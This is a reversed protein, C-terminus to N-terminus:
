NNLNAEVWSITIEEEAMGKMSIFKPRNMSTTKYFVYPGYKGKRISIDDSLKKIINSSSSSKKNIYEVVDKLMIDEMEKNIYKVSTNKGNITVYMGYKGNKLIVEEGNYEGLNRNQNPPSESNDSYMLQKLSYEGNKLKELDIKLNKNIQKFSINGKEDKYKIVPGYRGITYTHFEDIKIIPKDTKKIKKISGDIIDNCDRCLDSWEMGGSAIKDLLAEMNKTYDYEFLKNFHKILFEIVLLGTSQLVLKNKESGFEKVETKIEIEDSILEFNECEMKIGEVNEKNVYGKDQIKSIISSFTSPRGIGKKELLQILRSENYHQKLDKITMDSNIKEYSLGTNISVKKLKNYEDDNNEVGYVIKWGEFVVREICYKYNNKLPASLVLVLKDYIAKSMCSALANKYILLYLRLEKNSIKKGIPISTRNISTPRIAEHAEQTLKDKTKKKKNTNVLKFISKSIYKEGYTDHIYNQTLKVFEGSYKISDTRMYTIYGNEYLRQACSMTQKPSFGLDNSAKQQLRSTTLPIPESKMIKKESTNEIKHNFYVSEELFTEVTEKKKFKITLEFPLSQQKLYSFMGVTNYVKKGKRNKIDQYNDYVLRLASSQCRGASLGSKGSINKWLIPSVKFGVLLDLIQRSQQSYIKNLDLYTPNSLAKKIAPKTIEHFIIRKTHTLSLDFSKCIHWAIAEGERDDDTALIVESAKKINSRLQNIYKKKTTMLKYKPKFTNGIDISKLGNLFERIHGYSAVCKYGIGLYSEIKRCKAPSEVIVLKM